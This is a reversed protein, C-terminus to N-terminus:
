FDRNNVLVFLGKEFYNSPSVCVGCQKIFCAKSWISSEKISAVVYINQYQELPVNLLSRVLMCLLIVHLKRTISHAINYIQAELKNLM